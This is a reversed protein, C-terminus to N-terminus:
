WLSHWFHECNNVPIEDVNMFDELGGNGWMVLLLGGVCVRGLCSINLM